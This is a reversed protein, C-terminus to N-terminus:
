KIFFITWWRYSLLNNFFIIILKLAATTPKTIKRPISKKAMGTAIEIKKVHKNAATIYTPKGEKVVNPLVAQLVKFLKIRVAIGKNMKSPSNNILLEIVSLIYLEREFNILKKGPFSKWVFINADPKNAETDPDETAVVAVIPVIAIGSSELLFYSSLIFRPEIAAPAVRPM